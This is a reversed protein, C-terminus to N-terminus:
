DKRLVWRSFEPSTVKLTDGINLHMRNSISILTPSRYKSFVVAYHPDCSVLIDFMIRLEKLDLTSQSIYNMHRDFLVADLPGLRLRGAAFAIDMGERMTVSNVSEIRAKKVSKSPMVYNLLHKLLFKM